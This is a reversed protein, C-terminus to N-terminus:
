STHVTGVLLLWGLRGSGGVIGVGVSGVWGAKDTTGAIVFAVVAGAWDVLAIAM